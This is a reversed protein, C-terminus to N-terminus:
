PKTSYMNTTQAAADFLMETCSDEEAPTDFESNIENGYTIVDLQGSRASEERLEQIAAAIHEDDMEDM